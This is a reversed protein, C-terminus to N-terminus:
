RRGRSRDFPSNGRKRHMVRLWQVGTIPALIYVRKRLTGGGEYTGADLTTGAVLRILVNDGAVSAVEHVGNVITYGNGKVGKIRVKDNQSLANGVVSLEILGSLVDKRVGGIKLLPAEVGKSLVRLCWSTDILFKGFAAILKKKKPLGPDANPADTVNLRDAMGGIPRSARYLNGGAQFRVLQCVFSFDCREQNEDKPPLWEESTAVDSDGTISLDSGRIASISVGDSLLAARAKALLKADTLLPKDNAIQRFWSETWGHGDGGEFFLDVKIDKM